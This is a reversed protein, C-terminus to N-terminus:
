LGRCSYSKWHQSECVLEPSCGAELSGCTARSTGWARRGQLCPPVKSSGLEGTFVVMKLFGPGSCSGYGSSSARRERRNGHLSLWSSPIPWVSAEGSASSAPLGGTPGCQVLIFSTPQWFSLLQTVKVAIVTLEEFFSAAISEQLCCQTSWTLNWVYSCFYHGVSTQHM